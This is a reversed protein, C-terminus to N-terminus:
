SPPAPSLRISCGPGAAAAALFGFAVISKRM